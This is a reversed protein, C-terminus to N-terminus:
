LLMRASVVVFDGGDERGTRIYRAFADDLVGPEGVALIANGRVLNMAGQADGLFGCPEHQMPEPESQLLRIKSGLKASSSFDFNIFCVHAAFNLVHV